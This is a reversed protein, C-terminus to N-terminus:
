RPRSASGSRRSPTWRPPTPWCPRPAPRRRVRLHRGVHHDPDAPITRGASAGGARRLAVRPGAGRVERPDGPVPGGLVGTYYLKTPQWPAGAEPFRDPDGAARFAAVGVEHVRLHDPHPYGSQEDGYVVMVQPRTRRVVAVLRGVAEDLPAQAFSAPNANSESGAMGSDRYGLM